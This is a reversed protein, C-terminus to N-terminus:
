GFGEKKLWLFRRHFKLEALARKIKELFKLQHRSSIYMEQM